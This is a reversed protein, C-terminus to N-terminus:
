PLAHQVAKRIHDFLLHKASCYDDFLRTSKTKIIKRMPLCGGKCLDFINCQRCNAMMKEYFEHFKCARCPTMLAKTLANDSMTRVNGIFGYDRMTFHDMTDCLWLEGDPYLCVFNDCKEDRYECWTVFVNSIKALITAIPDIVPTQERALMPLDHMWMDFISCMFQAYQIPNIGFRESQGTASFNFCPIFKCLRAHISKMFDYVERPKDVNHSGIVSITSFKLTSNQIRKVGDIVTRFSSKGNPTVRVLDNIQQPGDISISVVRGSLLDENDQLLTVYEETLLTGNTQIAIQFDVGKIEKAFRVSSILRKLFDLGCLFPEGGHLLWLIRSKPFLDATKSILRETYDINLFHSNYYDGNKHFEFCYRCRLNCNMTPKIIFTKHLVPSLETQM